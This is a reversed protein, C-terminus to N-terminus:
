RQFLSALIFFHHKYFVQSACPKPKKLATCSEELASAVSVGVDGQARNQLAKESAKPCVWNGLDSIPVLKTAM